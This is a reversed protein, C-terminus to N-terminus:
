HRTLQIKLSSAKEKKTLPKSEVFNSNLNRPVTTTWVAPVGMQFDGNDKAKYWFVVDSINYSTARCDIVMCKRDSTCEFFVQEFENFTPFIGAFQEHIRRRVAASNEMTFVAYDFMGRVAMKIEMIYQVAIFAYCSIHRGNFMVYRIAQNQWMSKKLFELDEFVFLSPPCRSRHQSAITTRSMQMEVADTLIEDPFVDGVYTVYQAPVYKEWENGIERTGSFVTTDYVRDKHHYMFDRMAFSKGTRRGGAFLVTSFPRLNQPKFKRIRFSKTIRDLDRNM